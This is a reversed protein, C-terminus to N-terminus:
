ENTVIMYIMFVIWVTVSLILGFCSWRKAADSKVLAEGKRGEYWLTDVKSANLLAVLGCPFCFLVTVIISFGMYSEPKNKILSPNVCVQPESPSPLEVSSSDIPTKPSPPPPPLISFMPVLEPVSAANVWAAMGESWVLTEKNIKQYLEEPTFPGMPKNDSSLYYYNNM